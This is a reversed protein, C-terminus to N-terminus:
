PATPAISPAGYHSRTLTARGASDIKVVFMDDYEWDPITVDPTVGLAHIIAPVTNSHGVVLVTRGAFRERITAAIAAAHNPAAGGATVVVPELGLRTALPQATLRTRQFQTVIVASIGAHALSDALLNARRTGADGLVPDASADAKEAHRVLIVTTTPSAAATTGNGPTPQAMPRSSAHACAAAFLAIAVLSFRGM